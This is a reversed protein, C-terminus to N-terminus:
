AGIYTASEREEERRVRLTNQTNVKMNFNVICLQHYQLKHITYSQARETIDYTTYM